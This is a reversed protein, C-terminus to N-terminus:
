AATIKEVGVRNLVEGFREGARNHEFFIDLCRAVIAAVEDESFIGPLERGLQPHRGLKGGVLVRFGKGAEALTGAPCVDVCKGCAVCRARHLEPPAGDPLVEIADEQCAEACAGCGTCDEETVCPRQAGMIGVDV